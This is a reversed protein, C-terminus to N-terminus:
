ASSPARERQLIVLTLDDTRSVGATFNELHDIVRDVSKEADNRPLVSELLSRLRSEGFFEGEGNQLDHAGDSYLILGDEPGLRDAVSEYRCPIGLGAAVGLPLGSVDLPRASASQARWLLPPCHGASAITLAGSSRDLAAIACTVFTAADIQGELSRDLGVLIEAPDSRDRAEYRLMENFRVATIAAEMAKGSVDAIAIGLRGDALRLYTFYDGGVSNAPVCRGSMAYGEVVPSEKPLLGIQMDRATQLERRMEQVESLHMRDSEAEAEVTQRFAASVLCAAAPQALLFIGAGYLGGYDGLYAFAGAAPLLSMLALVFHSGFGTRKVTQRSLVYAEDIPLGLDAVALYSYIGQTGFRVGPVVLAALGLVTLVVRFLSLAFYRHARRLPKFIATPGTPRGRQLDLAMLQLGAHCSGLLLGASLAILLLGIFTAVILHPLNHLYCAIGARAATLLRLDNRAEDNGQMRASTHPFPDLSFHRGM